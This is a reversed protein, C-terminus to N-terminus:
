GLSRTALRTERATGNAAEVRYAAANPRSSVVERLDVGDFVLAAGDDVAYGPPLGGSAVLVHYTSRRQAEGDFHPCFSGALIGLGDRLPQLEPGFSDTTCGEFWCIGGASMGALVVGAEWAARLALDVGHLRWIVFMNATNGGGVYILDQDLLFAEIDRVTRNFLGLHRPESRDAFALHFALLERDSDAGATGIWCVRPRERGSRERALQLVFADLLGNDPAMSFGGGGMAVILPKSNM